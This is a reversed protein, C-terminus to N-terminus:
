HWGFFSVGDIVVLVFGWWVANIAFKEMIESRKAWKEPSKESPRISWQLWMFAFHVAVTELALLLWILMKLMIRLM